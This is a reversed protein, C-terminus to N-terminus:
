KAMERYCPECIIRNKSDVKYLYAKKHCKYCEFQGNADMLYKRRTGLDGEPYYRLPACGNLLLCLIILLLRMFPPVPSKEGAGIEKTKTM